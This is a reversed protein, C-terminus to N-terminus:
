YVKICKKEKKPNQERYFIITRSICHHAKKDSSDALNNAYRNYYM